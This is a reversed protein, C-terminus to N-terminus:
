PPEKRRHCSHPPVLHVSPVPLGTDKFLIHHTDDREDHARKHHQIKNKQDVPQPLHLASVRRGLLEGQPLRCVADVVIKLCKLIHHSLNRGIRINGRIKQPGAAIIGNQGFLLKLDILGLQIQKIGQIQM